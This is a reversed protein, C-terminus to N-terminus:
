KPALAHPSAALGVRRPVDAAAHATTSRHPSEQGCLAPPRAALAALAMALRRWPRLLLTGRKHSGQLNGYGAAHSSHAAPRRQQVQRSSTDVAGGRVKIGYSENSVDFAGSQIKGHIARATNIFAEEVNLATKASTELFVLGHEQV